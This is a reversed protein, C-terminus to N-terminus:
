SQAIAANREAEYDKAIDPNESLVKKYADAFRMTEGAKLAEALKEDALKELRGAAPAPTSDSAGKEGFMRVNPLAGIFAELKAAMPDSCAMYLDLLKEQIASTAPFKGKGGESFSWSTIKEKAKVTRLEKMAKEGALIRSEYDAKEAATITVKESAQVPEAVPEAHPEAPEEVVVVAPEAPPDSPEVPVAPVEMQARQEDTMEGEHEKLFEREAESLDSAKKALIDKVNMNTQNSKSNIFVKFADGGDESAVVPVMDKFLPRNVLGGGILVNASMSGDLSAMYVPCFEPSFYKYQRSQIKGAGMPTWDVTAWLGNAPNDTGDNQLELATIWGAAEGGDHDLDIPLSDGARLKGSNFNAIYESCDGETFSFEGHTPSDFVGLPSIQIKLPLNGNEDATIPLMTRFTEKLKM